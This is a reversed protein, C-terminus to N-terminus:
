WAMFNFTSGSLVQGSHVEAMGYPAYGQETLPSFYMRLVFSGATTANLNAGTATVALKRQAATTLYAARTGHTNGIEVGPGTTVDGVTDAFMDASGAYFANPDAAATDGVEITLASLSTAAFKAVLTTRVGLLVSNAPQLWFDAADTTGAANCAAHSHTITVDDWSVGKVMVTGTAPDNSTANM